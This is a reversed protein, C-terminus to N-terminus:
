CLEISTVLVAEIRQSPSHFRSQCTTFINMVWLEYGMVWVEAVSLVLLEYSM